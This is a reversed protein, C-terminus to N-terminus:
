NPLPVRRRLEDFFNQVFVIAHEEKSAEAGGARSAVAVRKGAAAVVLHRGDSTWRPYRYVAGGFTLRTMADRRTEYIWVDQGTSDVITLAVRSGDPSVSLDRYFGAKAGLPERKGSADLWQLTM